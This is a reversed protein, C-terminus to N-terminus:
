TYTDDISIEAEIGFVNHRNASAANNRTMIQKLKLTLADAVTQPLSEDAVPLISFQIDGQAASIMSSLCMLLILLHRRM